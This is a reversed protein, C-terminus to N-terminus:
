SHTVSDIHCCKGGDHKGEWLQVVLFCIFLFSFFDVSDFNSLIQSHLLYLLVRYYRPPVVDPSKM